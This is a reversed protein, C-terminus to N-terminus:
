IQFMDTDKRCHLPERRLTHNALFALSPNQTGDVVAGIVQHVKGERVDTSAFRAGVAPAVKNKVPQFARRAATPRAFASPRLISRALGSSRTLVRANFSPSRPVLATGRGCSSQRRFFHLILSSPSTPFPPAQLLKLHPKLVAM